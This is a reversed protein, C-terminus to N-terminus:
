VDEESDGYIADVFTQQNDQHQEVEASLDAMSRELKRRRSESAELDDLIRDRIEIERKSDGLIGLNKRLQEQGSVVQECETQLVRVQKKADQAKHKEDWLKELQAHAKDPLLDDDHLEQIFDIDWDEINEQHERVNRVSVTFQVNGNAPVAVSWRTHDGTASAPEPMRCYEAQSSDRQEIFVTTDRALHSDLAYVRESIEYRSVVAQREEGDFEVGLVGSAGQEFTESVVIGFELAYPIQIEDGVGTFRIIGEGIYKGADSITVPGQELAKGTANKLQWVLLPHNPMKDSNYVCVQTYEVPQEIISVMASRGRRVSVPTEVEYTMYEPEANDMVVPKFYASSVKLDGLPGSRRMMSLSEKSESDEERLHALNLLNGLQENMRGVGRRIVQIYNQQEKPLMSDKELLNAYGIIMGMPSRLNHAITQLSEIVRPSDSITELATPDDSVQPRAPVRSEYLEYEFSIPRGSVLTLAVKDLDEDLHNEFLAWGSLQAQNPGDGVLRYGVRWTPSPALYSIRAEPTEDSLRIALTTRAQEIQDLDLFFGVDQVAKEDRLSLGTLQGIPLIQIRSSDDDAQLLVTAPHTDPDLSAEVGVLRGTATEGSEMELAIRSGRLSSLLDVMSSRDTMKVSIEGLAKQKDAPTEYDIGLLRGGRPLAVTISKLVDNISGRPVVLSISAREPEGRREFFGIGQKYLTLKHIPLKSM